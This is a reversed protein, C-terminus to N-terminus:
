VATRQLAAGTPLSSLGGCDYRPQESKFGSEDPFIIEAPMEDQVIDNGNNSAMSEGFLPFGIESNYYFAQHGIVTGVPKPMEIVANEQFKQFLIGDIEHLKPLLVYTGVYSSNKKMGFVSMEVTMSYDQAKGATLDTLSIRSQSGDVPRITSLGALDGSMVFELDPQKFIVVKSPKGLKFEYARVYGESEGCVFYQQVTCSHQQVTLTHKCSEDPDLGVEDAQSTTAMSLLVMVAPLFKMKQSRRVVKNSLDAVSVM